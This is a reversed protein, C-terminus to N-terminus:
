VAVGRAYPSARRQPTTSSKPYLWPFTLVSTYWHVTKQVFEMCNSVTPGDKQQKEAAHLGKWLRTPVFIVTKASRFRLLILTSCKNWVTWSIWICSINFFHLLLVQLKTQQKLFTKMIQWIHFIVSMIHKRTKISHRRIQPETLFECLISHLSMQLLCEANRDVDEM